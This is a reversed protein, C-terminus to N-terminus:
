KQCTKQYKKLIELIKQKSVASPKKEGCEWYYITQRSVGLLKAFQEQTLFLSRRLEEIYGM